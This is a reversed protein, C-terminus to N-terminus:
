SSILSIKISTSLNLYRMWSRNSEVKRSKAEEELKGILLMNNFNYGRLCIALVHGKEIAALEVGGVPFIWAELWGLSRVRYRDKFEPM